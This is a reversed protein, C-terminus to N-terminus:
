NHVTESGNLGMILNELRRVRQKLAEISGENVQANWNMQQQQRDVIRNLKAIDRQQRDLRYRHTIMRVRIWTLHCLLEWLNM